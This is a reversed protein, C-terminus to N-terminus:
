LSETNPDTRRALEQKLREVMSRIQERPGHKAVPWLPAVFLPALYVPVSRSWSIEYGLEGLQREAQEMACDDAEISKPCLLTAGYSHWRVTCEVPTGDALAITISQSDVAHADGAAARDVQVCLAREEDHTM